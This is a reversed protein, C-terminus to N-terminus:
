VGDLVKKYREVTLRIDVHKDTFTENESRFM